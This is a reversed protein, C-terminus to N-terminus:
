RRAIRVPRPSEYENFVERAPTEHERAQKWDPRKYTTRWTPRYEQVHRFVVGQGFADWVGQRAAIPTDADIEVTTTVSAIRSGPAPPMDFTIRFMRM